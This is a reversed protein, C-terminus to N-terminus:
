SMGEYPQHIAVFGGYGQASGIHGLAVMGRSSWDVPGLLDEETIAAIVASDENRLLRARQEECQVAFRGCGSRASKGEEMQKFFGDEDLEAKEITGDALNLCFTADDFLIDVRRPGSFRLEPFSKDQRWRGQEQWNSTDLAVLEGAQSAVVLVEGDPSFALAGLTGDEEEGEFLELRQSAQHLNPLLPADAPDITDAGAGHSPYSTTGWSMAETLHSMCDASRMWVDYVAQVLKEEDQWGGDREYYFGEYGRTWDIPENLTEVREVREVYRWANADVFAEDLIEQTSVAQAMSSGDDARSHLVRFFFSADDPLRQYHEAEPDYNVVFVRLRLRREAPESALVRVGYLDTSM